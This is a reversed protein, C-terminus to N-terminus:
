RRNAEVSLEVRNVREEDSLSLGTSLSGEFFDLPTKWPGGETRLRAGEPGMWVEVAQEVVFTLTADEGTRVVDGAIRVGLVIEDGPEFRVVIGDGEGRELAAVQEPNPGGVGDPRFGDVIPTSSSPSSACGGALVIAVLAIVPISRM